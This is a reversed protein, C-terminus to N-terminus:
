LEDEEEGERGARGGGGVGEKRSDEGEDLYSIPKKRQEWAKGDEKTSEKVM